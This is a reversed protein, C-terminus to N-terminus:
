TGTGVTCEEIRGDWFSPIPSDRHRCLFRRESQVVCRHDPNCCPLVGAQGLTTGGCQRNHNASNRSFAGCIPGTDVCSAQVLLDAIVRAAPIVMRHDLSFTLDSIFQDASSDLGALLGPKLRRALPLLVGLIIGPTATAFMCRTCTLQTQWETYLIPRTSSNLLSKYHGPLPADM